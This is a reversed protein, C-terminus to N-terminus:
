KLLWMKRVSQTDGVRFQYFYIGSSRNGTEIKEMGIFRKKVM